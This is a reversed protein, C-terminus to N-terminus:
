DFELVSDAKSLYIFDHLERAKHYEPNIRLAERLECLAKDTHGCDLYLLGLNYFTKEYDPSLRKATLFHREASGAMGKARYALGINNHADTFDPRLRLAHLYHKIAKDIDGKEYHIVGLNNYTKEMDPRLRLAAEYHELAKEHIGKTRYAFALNHHALAYGPKLSLATIFNGIAADLSGKARHALGLNNYGLADGPSKRVADEWLRVECQWVSNRRYTAMAFTVPVILLMALMATKGVRLKASLFFIVSFGAMFVGVSPLYMRYENILMPLAVFSSEVSLTLIFWLIGFAILRLGPMGSRSRYILYAATCILSLFFLFSVFVEPHLFSGHLPYDYNINQRLPAFLLRTYTVLVRYQTLFYEMRSIGEQGAIAHGLSGIVEGVPRDIDALTLPIIFVTLLLPVLRLLRIFRVRRSARSWGFFLVEYLLMIFPLTFANEKTKMALVASLLFCAYFVLSAPRVGGGAEVRSRWKVYMLLSFLYFFAMLSAFRQFIYTVAETQVPHSVFVLASLLAIHGSSATISANELLPTRFTYLILLYVLLGNMLHVALNFVHYGAVDFGHLRYNLAFTLYGIFRSKIASCFSLAKLREPDLFNDLDKIISNDKLFVNEDWQFPANFTNSYALFGALAILVIHFCKTKRKGM